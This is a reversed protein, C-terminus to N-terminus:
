MENGLEIARRVIIGPPLALSYRGSGIGSWGVGFRKLASIGAMGPTGVGRVEGPLIM